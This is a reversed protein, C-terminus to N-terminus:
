ERKLRKSFAATQDYCWRGTLDLVFRMEPTTAWHNNAKRVIPIQGGAPVLENKSWQTMESPSFNGRSLLSFTVLPGTRCIIMKNAYAVQGGLAAEWPGNEEDAPVLIGHTTFQSTQKRLGLLFERWIALPKKLMEQNAKPPKGEELELHAYRFALSCSFYSLHDGYNVYDRDMSPLNDLWKATPTEGRQEFRQECDSCLWFRQLQSSHRKQKALDIFPAGNAGCAFRKYALRPHIHSEMLSAHKSCLKCFSEGPKRKRAKVM